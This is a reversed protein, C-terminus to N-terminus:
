GPCLANALSSIFPNLITEIQNTVDQFNNALWDDFFGAVTTVNSSPNNLSINALSEVVQDELESAPATLVAVVESGSTPVDGGCVGHIAFVAEGNGSIISEDTGKLHYEL